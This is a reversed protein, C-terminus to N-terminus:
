LGVKKRARKESALRRRKSPGAEDEPPKPFASPKQSPGPGVNEPSLSLTPSVNPTPRATNSSGLTSSSRVNSSSTASTPRSSSSTSSGSDSPGAGSTVSEERTPVPEELETAASVKSPVLKLTPVKGPLVEVRCSIGLKRKLEVSPDYCDPTFHGSCIVSTASPAKFDARTNQVFRTWMRRTKEDKPFTHLTFGDKPTNSCRGVVCRNPM